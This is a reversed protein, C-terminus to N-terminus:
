EETYMLYIDLRRTTLENTQSYGDVENEIRCEHVTVSGGMEGRFGDLAVLINRVVQAAEAYGRSMVTIQFRAEALGSPGDHAMVRPGSIRQYAAAPLTVDQPIVLPYTDVIEAIETFLAEEILM